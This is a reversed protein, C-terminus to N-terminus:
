LTVGEDVRQQLQDSLRLGDVFALQRHDAQIALAAAALRAREV